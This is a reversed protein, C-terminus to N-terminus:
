KRETKSYGEVENTRQKYIWIPVADPYTPPDHVRPYGLRSHVHRQHIHDM